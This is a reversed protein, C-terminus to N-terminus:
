AKYEKRAGSSISIQRAHRKSVQQRPVQIKRRNQCVCVQSKRSLEELRIWAFRVFVVHRCGQRLGFSGAADDLLREGFRERILLCISSDFRDIGRRNVSGTTKSGYRGKSKAAACVLSLMM